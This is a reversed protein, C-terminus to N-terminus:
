LLSVPDVDVRWGFPIDLGRLFHSPDPARVIIQWRYYGRFRAFFAPVPGMIEVQAAPLGMEAVHHRLTAAMATTAAQVKELKKDWFILRALRHIPPYRQERRFAVERRYFAHYDHNAAAQIAYHDPTYTQLVVRGGRHSRGARGAVQMLLQFTREPARFDPLYLGVDASVVGVLTVLPLDLGKAIMQTGVLVDAEHAAFRELIEQHSGKHTTTDADWRLLRARPAIQQVMEEIRQTGSGFYKIRKSGCGPETCVTPIPYRRNCHHCILVDAREHYTLPVDCQLCKTVAGCDRCMVFTSTGRRNLFLIAQEGADLTTQLESILSRSFISRNGARLEQRMDVIEVPPMEAYVPARSESERGEKEEEGEGHGMVRRPMELLHIANETTLHYIELSPTASGLILGSGTLSSLRQAVTRADYFVTFSGWAEADQKYSSEHEEDLVILGLRPLPAFLASRPGVVVDIEEDRIRRWVDYREGASLESHIVSVRGPFRGAFRAVTQPTLAIEPVLVIAQRNRRLMEAIALLYIETKGSGTAGHLLFHAPTIGQDTPFFQARITEWVQEQQDTLRPSITRRYARGALPDRYRVQETIEILRADHLDRLMQINTEAKAYLDSKWLPGDSEALAALVPAYKSAGRLDLISATAEEVTLALRVSGDEWLIIGKEILSDIQDKSRLNCRERLAVASLLKEPEALLTELVLVQKTQRGLKFLHSHIEDAPILLEIQEERKARVGPGSNAKHLLGPPLLLKLTESLPAIYYDAMWFALEIQAPTLVPQPRALRKIAKTPMPSSEDLATVIGQVEQNGFPVWVLHGAQLTGILDAPLHYHFTQLRAPGGGLSHASEGDDEFPNPPATQERGFSRRIPVNVVVQAFQQMYHSSNAM